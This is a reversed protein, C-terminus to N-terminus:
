AAARRRVAPTRRSRPCRRLATIVEDVNEREAVAAIREAPPGIESVASVAIGAASLAEIAQAMAARCTFRSGHAQVRPQIGVVLVEVAVGSRALSQFRAVPARGATSDDVALLFKV